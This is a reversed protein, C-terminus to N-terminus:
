FELTPILYICQFANGGLSSHKLDRAKLRVEKLENPVATYGLCTTHRPTQSLDRVESIYLENEYDQNYTKAKAIYKSYDKTRVQQISETEKYGFENYKKYMYKIEISM